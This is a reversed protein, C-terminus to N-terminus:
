AARNPSISLHFIKEFISNKQKYSYKKKTSSSQCRQYWRLSHFWSQLVFICCCVPSSINHLLKCQDKRWWKRGKGMVSSAEIVVMELTDPSVDSVNRASRTLILGSLCTSMDTNVQLDVDQHTWKNLITQAKNIIMSTITFKVTRTKKLGVSWFHELECEQPDIHEM